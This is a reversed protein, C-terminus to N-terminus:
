HRRLLLAGFDHAREDAKALPKTQDHRGFADFAGVLLRRQEASAAFLTLALHEALRNGSGVRQHEEAFGGLNNAILVLRNLRSDAYASRTCSTGSKASLTVRM